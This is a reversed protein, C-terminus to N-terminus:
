GRRLTIAALDDDFAQTGSQEILEAILRPLLDVGGNIQTLANAIAQHTFHAGGNSKLGHLGDTYLLAVDGTALTTVTENMEMEPDIGM